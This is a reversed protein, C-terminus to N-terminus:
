DRSRCALWRGSLPAPRLPHPSEGIIGLNGNPAFAEISIATSVQPDRQIRAEIGIWRPVKVGHTLHRGSLLRLLRGLIFETRFEPTEALLELSLMLSGGAGSNGTDRIIFGKPTTM